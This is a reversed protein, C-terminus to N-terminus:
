RGCRARALSLTAAAGHSEARGQRRRAKIRRPRPGTQRGRRGDSHQGSVAGSPLSCREEGTASSRWPAHSRARGTSSPRQRMRASRSRVSGTKETASIASSSERKQSCGPTSGTASARAAPESRCPRGRGNRRSSGSWASRAAAPAGAACRRRWSWRPRGRRAAPPAARCARPAPARGSARARRRCGPPRARRRRQGVEAVLRRGQGVGLLRQQDGQGLRRLEAPGVAM